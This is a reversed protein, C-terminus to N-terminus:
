KSFQRSDNWDRRGQPNAASFKHGTQQMRVINRVDGDSRSSTNRRAKGGGKSSGMLNLNVRPPDNFAFSKAVAMLDLDHVNFIEKMSHSAYAQLYSRYGDKASRNLSYNEGVMKELQPQVKALKKEPFEYENLPVKFKKLQALFGIEQPLLFLLAKGKGGVGRATRGVRHIYEKPEDPPDFQIIWDVSPIDLGRAAVDTSILISSEAKCFKFFTSTRKNQKQRGHLDLVPIDIHNLLEYYYKVANCSSMFVIVKKKLNRRLFTYLLLFRREAPIIVFGQELGAVTSEMRQDRVDIFVPKQRFSLKVLDAVKATQTASFLMTQRKKPISQIIQHMEEEFGIELCRDAEDIILCQCNKVIFGSTNHLHDLLRGPTAVLIAVGKELKEMEAKRNAGGIVLGYSQSHYKCLDEVVGYIQMALERTPTIIISATGNRMKWKVRHLLEVIPMLFALTKGSGTKAAGLVDRGGMGQPICRAQVETMREFGMDKLAKMTPESLGLEDFRRATLVGDVAKDRPDLEAVEVGDKKTEEQAAVADVVQASEVETVPSEAAEETVRAKKSAEVDGEAVAQAAKSRSRKRVMILFKSRVVATPDVLQIFRDLLDM